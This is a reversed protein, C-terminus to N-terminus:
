GADFKLDGSLGRRHLDESGGREQGGLFGGGSGRHRLTPMRGAVRGTTPARYITGEESKTNQRPRDEFRHKQKETTEKKAKISAATGVRQSAKNGCGLISAL